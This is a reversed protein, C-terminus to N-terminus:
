VHGQAGLCLVRPNWDAHFGSPNDKWAWAHLAYHAPLGYRNPEAVLHFDQGFLTPPSSHAADWAEAFVVYEAGLLRLGGDRRVEYMLAEPTRANLKGDAALEANVFHIGMAGQLPEHVCGFFQVYGSEIAQGVRQYQATAARVRARTSGIPGPTHAAVAVAARESGPATSATPTVLGAGLAVLALPVMRRSTFRTRM